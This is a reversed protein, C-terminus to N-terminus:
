PCHTKEVSTKPMFYHQAMYGLYFAYVGKLLLFSVDVPRVPYQEQYLRYSSIEHCLLLSHKLHGDKSMGKGRYRCRLM